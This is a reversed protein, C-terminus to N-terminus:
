MWCLTHHMSPHGVEQMTRRLKFYCVREAAMTEKLRDCAKLRQGLGLQRQDEDREENYVSVMSQVAGGTMSAQRMHM